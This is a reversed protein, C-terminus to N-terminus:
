GKRETECGNGCEIEALIEGIDGVPFSLESAKRIADLKACPESPHHLDEQEVSDSM